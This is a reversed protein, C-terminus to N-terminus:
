LDIKEKNIWKSALIEDVTYRKTDTFSLMNELLAYSSEDFHKEFIITRPINFDIHKFLNQRCLNSFSNILTIENQHPFQCTILIYLLIGIQWVDTKKSYVCLDYSEPAIYQMTGFIEDSIYGDNNNSIISLDFDIIKVENKQNIIINDLKLDCHIINYTHLFRTGRTIQILINKIQKEPLDKKQKIYDLLNSGEFYEYIFYYFENEQNFDVFKIINKHQHYKLISCIDKEFTNSYTNHRIKLIYKINNENSKIIYTGKDHKENITEIINYEKGHKSNKFINKLENENEYICIEINTNPTFNIINVKVTKNKQKLLM